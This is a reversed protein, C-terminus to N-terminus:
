VFWIEQLLFFRLQDPAEEFNLCPFSLVLVGGPAMETAIMTITIITIKKTIITIITITITIITITITIITKTITKTIITITITSLQEM